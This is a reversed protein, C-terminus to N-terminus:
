SIPKGTTKVIEGIKKQLAKSVECPTMNEVAHGAVQTIMRIRGTENLRKPGYLDCLDIMESAMAALYLNRNLPEKEPAMAKTTEAIAQARLRDRILELESAPPFAGKEVKGIEVPRTAAPAAKFPVIPEDPVGASLHQNALELYSMVSQSASARTAAMERRFAAEGTRTFKRGKELIDAWEMDGKAIGAHIAMLWVQAQHRHENDRVVLKDLNSMTTLYDGKEWAAQALAWFYAPTGPKARDAKEATSCSVLCVGFVLALVLLPRPSLM